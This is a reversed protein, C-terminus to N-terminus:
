HEYMSYFYMYGTLLILDSMMSFTVPHLFGDKDEDNYFFWYSKDKFFLYFHDEYSCLVAVLFLSRQILQLKYLPVVKQTRRDGRPFELILYPADYIERRQMRRNGMTTEQTRILDQTTKIEGLRKIDMESQPMIMEYEINSGMDKGDQFITTKIQLADPFLLVKILRETYGSADDIQTVSSSTCTNLAERVKALTPRITLVRTKQDFQEPNEYIRQKQEDSLLSFSRLAKISVMMQDYITRLNVFERQLVEWNTWRGCLNIRSGQFRVEFQKALEAVTKGEKYAQTIAKRRADLREPFLSMQKDIWKDPVGFLAVTVTNCFCSNNEWGFTNL